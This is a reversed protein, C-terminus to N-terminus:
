RRWNFQLNHAGRTTIELNADLKLLEKKNGIEYAVLYALRTVREMKSFDARDVTDGAQHYDRTTGCFFWVAPIGYQIYPFQDSRFFFRDRHLQDNYRYDFGLHIYKDNMKHIAADLELSIKDSGILYLSDTHNRCIMDLNLEASMKEVPVPSNEVFYRAGWLGKEEVTHWVLIVSRKPREITLAQAIELMAVTGSGNDDAGPMVMGNRIGLHDHHSGLLVYEDRLNPDTGEIWAVVNSSYNKESTRRVTVEVAKNPVAGALVQRGVSLATFHDNLEDKSIGLIAAAVDHRIEAQIFPPPPPQTSTRPASIGQSALPEVLQPRKTNGFLSENQVFDREREESIVTLVAAAGKQRAATSRNRLVRRNEPARLVHSDPLTGDIMVVVKGAVDIGEYDNWEQDPAELGYGLFVVEGAYTGPSVSRGLGFAQPFYFIQEGMEGMVRLRTDKESYSTVELPIDQLYSGDPMLPELGYSKVIEAIYRSTIKLEPSPTDRGKFEEAAIINLHIRLEVATISRMGSQQATAAFVLVFILAFAVCCSFYKRSM